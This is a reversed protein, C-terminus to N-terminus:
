MKDPLSSPLWARFLRVGWRASGAQWAHPTTGSGSSQVVCKHVKQVSTASVLTSPYSPRRRSWRGNPLLGPRQHLPRQGNWDPRRLNPHHISSAHRHSQTPIRNAQARRGQGGSRLTVCVIVPITKANVPDGGGAGRGRWSPVSPAGGGGGGHPVPAMHSRGRGPGIARDVPTPWPGSVGRGRRLRVDELRVGGAAETYAEGAGGCPGPAGPVCLGWCPLVRGLFCVWFLVAVVSM